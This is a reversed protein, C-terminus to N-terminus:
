SNAYYSVRVSMTGNNVATAWTLYAGASTQLYAKSNPNDFTASFMTPQVTCGSIMVPTYADSGSFPFGGIYFLGTGPAAWNITGFYFQATVLRGVKVFTGTTGGGFTVDTPNTTGGTLVPTWTGEIYDDLTNANTSPNQIAPFTMGKKTTVNDFVGVLGEVYYGNGSSNTVTVPAYTPTDYTVLDYSRSISTEDQTSLLISNGASPKIFGCEVIRTKYAPGATGIAICGSKTNPLGIFRCRDFANDTCNTGLTSKLIVEYTVNAAGQPEFECDVFANGYCGDLIVLAPSTYSPNNSFNSRSITLQSGKALILSAQSSSHAISNKVESSFCDNLFLGYQGYIFACRDVVCYTIQSLYSQYLTCQAIQINSFECNSIAGQSSAIMSLGTLAKNDGDVSFDRLVVNSYAGSPYSLCIMGVTGAKLVSRNVGHGYIIQTARPLLAATILYTGAPIYVYNHATLAAQIAATDDTVGDGVAGFDKVSVSERLKAQVTTAVAGAGAPLYTVANADTAASNINIFKVVAGVHLGSVFTVTTASTEVYSNNVVQNVGDIYVGLTFVGPTYTMSTLVFSTQGATAVQVETVANEAGAAIGYLNDYTGILEESSTKLIFLYAQASTLWIEGSPVRGASDLIIPNPHATLGNAETYTAKPTTTGAEYTYIKGGYLPVGGSNFFQSAAGGVPSLSVTM